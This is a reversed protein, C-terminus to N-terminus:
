GALPAGMLQSLHQVGRDSVRYRGRQLAIREAAIGRAEGLLPSDPWLDVFALYGLPPFGHLRDPILELSFDALVDDFRSDGAVGGLM